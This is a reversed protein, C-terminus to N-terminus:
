KKSQNVFAYFKNAVDIVDDVSPVNPLEDHGDTAGSVPDVGFAMRIDNIAAHYEDMVHKQALELIDARIEYGNRGTVKVTNVESM